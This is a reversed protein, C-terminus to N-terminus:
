SSDLLLLNLLRTTNLFAISYYLSFNFIVKAPVIKDLIASNYVFVADELNNVVINLLCLGQMWLLMIIAILKIIVMSSALQAFKNVISANRGLQLFEKIRLDVLLLEFLQHM